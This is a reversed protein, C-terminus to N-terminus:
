WLYASVPLNRQPDHDPKCCVVVARSSQFITHAILTFWNEVDLIIAASTLIKRFLETLARETRQRSQSCPRCLLFSACTCTSVACLRLFLTSRAQLYVSSLLLISALEIWWLTCIKDPQDLLIHHYTSISQFFTCGAFTWESCILPTARCYGSTINEGICTYFQM